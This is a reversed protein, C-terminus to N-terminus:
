TAKKNEILRKIKKRIILPKELLFITNIDLKNRKFTSAIKAILSKEVKNNILILRLTKSNRNIIIIEIYDINSINEILKSNIYLNNNEVKIIIKKAVLKRFFDYILISFIATFILSFSFILNKRNYFLHGVWSNKGIGSPKRLALEEHNILIYGFLITLFLFFIINKIIKKTNYEM